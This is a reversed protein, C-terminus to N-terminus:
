GNPIHKLFNYPMPSATNLLSIRRKKKVMRIMWTIRIGRMIWIMRTMRIMRIMRTIRIGRMMWIMRIFRIM